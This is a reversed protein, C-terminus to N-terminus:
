TGVPQVEVKLRLHLVEDRVGVQYMNRISLLRVGHLGCGVFSPQLWIKGDGIWYGIREVCSNMEGM